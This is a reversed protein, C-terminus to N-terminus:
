LSNLFELLQQRQAAGLRSYRERSGAAEGDHGRIAEDVTAARGDHLYPGSARLGWLPATRMERSGASAQAIGDGLLGMEHLLLDSYLPVPKQNLAPIANPGTNMLPTHCVACNIQNFIARGANCGQTPPLPPPPALFRMFDAVTDIDSKGTTPDITDEPDALSDFQALRATDGNPANETPFFRNTIGMENLYADGAFALLAAQQAKWGFRGVRADGSVVDTIMAARGRIGDIVPHKAGRLIDQDAIAEILGLGYLPTTQRHVVVNAQAPIIEQVAPDIANQQLLSGGLSALPDLVGSELRGFRTVSILGAGGTAASSHCAVCSVNNFTPGLGTEITEVNQFEDLGTAFDTLQDATL